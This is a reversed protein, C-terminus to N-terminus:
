NQYLEVAGVEIGVFPAIIIPLVNYALLGSAFIQLGTLGCLTSVKPLLMVVGGTLMLVTGATAVGLGACIAGNTFRDGLTLDESQNDDSDQQEDSDSHVDDHPLKLDDTIKPPPANDPLLKKNETNKGNNIVKTNLCLGVIFGGVLGVALIGLALWPAEGTPDVYNM